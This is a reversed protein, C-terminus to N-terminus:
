ILILGLILKLIKCFQYVHKVQEVHIQSLLQKIMLYRMCKKKGTTMQTTIEKNLKQLLGYYKDNTSEKVKALNQKDTADLEVHKKKNKM